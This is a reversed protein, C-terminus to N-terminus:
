HHFDKKSIYPKVNYTPSEKIRSSKVNYSPKDAKTTTKIKKGTPNRISKKTCNDAEGQSQSETNKNTNTQKKKYNRFVMTNNKSQLGGIPRQRIHCCHSM